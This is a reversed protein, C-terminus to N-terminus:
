WNFIGVPSPNVQTIEGNFRGEFARTVDDRNFRNPFNDTVLEWGMRSNVYCVLAPHLSEHLNSHGDLDQDSKDVPRYNSKYRIRLGMGINITPSKFEKIVKGTSDDAENKEVIGIREEDIFWLLRKATDKLM